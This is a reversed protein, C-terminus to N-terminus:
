RLDRRPEYVVSVVLQNSTGESRDGEYKQRRYDYNTQLAWERNLRWEVGLSAVIYRRERFDIEDQAATDRVGRIAALGSVLPTFNRQLRLRVEDRTVLEGSSNPRVARALDAFLRTVQYTAAVGAGFILNTSDEPAEGVEPDDQSTREAGLRVYSELIESRNHWYEAHVGYSSSDGTLEGDPSFQTGVAAVRLRSTPSLGFGMGLSAFVSSFDTNSTLEDESYDANMYELAGELTQRETINFSASPMIRILQRRNRPVVEGSGVGPVGGLDQDPADAEPQESNLLDERAYRANLGVQSKLGRYEYGADLYQNNYDQDKDDPFYTSRLRPRVNLDSTPTSSRFNVGVDAVAGQVEDNANPVTRYNDNYLAGAEVRPEVAVEAATATSLVLVSASVVGASRRARLLRLRSVNKRMLM